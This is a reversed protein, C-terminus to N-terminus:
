EHCLRRIFRNIVVVHRKIEESWEQIRAADLGEADIRDIGIALGSLATIAREIEQNPDRHRMNRLVPHRAPLNDRRRQLEIHAARVNGTADMTEVIDGFKEAEQEAAEVVAKAQEYRQRCMGVAAAAPMSLHRTSTSSEDVHDCISSEKAKEIRKKAKWAKVAASRRAFSAAKLQDEIARAVAVAESPTFAKRVENEDREAALLNDVAITRVQIDEWGLHMCALIRRHGAILVGDPTVAPPHILGHTQISQALAAIDGMDKRVRDGISIDAIKM